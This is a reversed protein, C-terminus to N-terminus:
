SSLLICVEITVFRDFYRKLKDIINEKRYDLTNGNKFSKTKLNINLLKHLFEKVGQQTRVIYTGDKRWGPLQCIKLNDENNDLIFVSPDEIVEENDNLDSEKTKKVKSSKLEVKICDGDISYKLVDPQKTGIKSRRLDLTNGNKFIINKKDLGFIVHLYDRVGNERRTITGNRKDVYWKSNQILDKRGFDDDIICEGYGESFTKFRLVGNEQVVSTKFSKSQLSM